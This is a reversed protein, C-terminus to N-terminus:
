ADQRPSTILGGLKALRRIVGLFTLLWSILALYFFCRSLPFLFSFEGVKALQYTGASYMGLPFVMGWYEPTYQVPLRRVWHRWVMLIVLFPLWWTAVSWFFLTFGKLFPLIEQLFPWQSTNLILTAGALTTIAVAGMNIWYLPNFEEPALSFFTLRYFILPIILIYLMGGLLFLTLALFLLAEQWPSLSPAILVGLISISQTSVIAMSWGGTLGEPLNPKGIRIIVATFFSYMILFWVLIGLLWLFAGMAPNRVLIVFQAGLVCTGAVITFFGAGRRHDAL